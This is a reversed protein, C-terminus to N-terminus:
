LNVTSQAQLQLPHNKVNSGIYIREKERERRGESKRGGGGVKERLGHAKHVRTHADTNEREWAMPKTHM